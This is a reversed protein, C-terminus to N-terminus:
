RARRNRPVRGAQIVVSSSVRELPLAVGMDRLREEFGPRLGTPVPSGLFRGDPAIGAQYDFRFLEQMTITGGEMGQIEAVQTVRRTGDRLRSLHVVLDVASAIQERIARVPLDMGSMLVMTELRALADRPSNSHLTSLSGEHGTNMAQLMDLAEAGRVEGIIIRDPRMRLANRLLDRITVQGKGEINPPRSELRVVHDQALQLEVADEISIIRQDSPIYGSLVNLLTTKGTGTGGSILINMRGEVCAALFATLDSTLTGFRVLDEAVLPTVAFKRITLAPGGVALPPIIANVRSGDPLRADVMPSSEDIRRGVQGVIREIVRRLHDDAVFRADTREIRGAREVYIPGGGNVMIETVSADDLLRQLPGYGLVDDAVERTLRRREAPSLPTREQAVIVELEQQVHQQLQQDGLSSDYLRAGLRLFLAEQTRDKLYALSDGQEVKASPGTAPSRADNRQANALRETLSM